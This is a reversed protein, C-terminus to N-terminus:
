SESPRSLASDGNLPGLDVRWMVGRGELRTGGLTIRFIYKVVHVLLSCYSYVNYVKSCKIIQFVCIPILELHIMRKYLNSLKKVNYQVCDIRLSNSSSNCMIIHIFSICIQIIGLM